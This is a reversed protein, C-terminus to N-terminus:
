HAKYHIRLGLYYVFIIEDCIEIADSRQFHLIETSRNLTLSLHQYNSCNCM